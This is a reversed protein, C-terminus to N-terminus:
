MCVHMCMQICVDGITTDKVLLLSVTDSIPLCSISYILSLNIEVMQIFLYVYKCICKHEKMFLYQSVYMLVVSCEYIFM